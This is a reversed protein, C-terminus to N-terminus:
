QTTFKRSYSKIGLISNIKTATKALLVLAESSELTSILSLQIHGRNSIIINLNKYRFIYHDDSLTFEFNGFKNKLKIINRRSVRTINEPNTTYYVSSANVKMM